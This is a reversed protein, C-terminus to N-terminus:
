TCIIRPILLDVTEKHKILFPLNYHQLKNYRQKQELNLSFIQLGNL